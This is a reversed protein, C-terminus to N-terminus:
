NVLKSTATAVPQRRHNRVMLDMLIEISSKLEYFYQRRSINLTKIILDVALEDVYTLKLIRYNQGGRSTDQDDQPKLLEISQTLLDRLAKGRAGATPKSPNEPSALAWDALALRGLYLDDWLHRLANRLQRVLWGSELLWADELAVSVPRTLDQIVSITSEKLAGVGPCQLEIVGICTEQNYIPLALASQVSPNIAKIRQYDGFSIDPLIVARSNQYAEAAILSKGAPIMMSGDNEQTLM